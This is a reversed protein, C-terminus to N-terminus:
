NDSKINVVIPVNDYFTEKYLNLQKRNNMDISYIKAIDTEINIENIKQESFRYQYLM